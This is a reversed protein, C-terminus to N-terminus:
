SAVEYPKVGLVRCAQLYETRTSDTRLYGLAARLPPIADTPADDAKPKAVLTKKWMVLTAILLDMDEEVLPWSIRLMAVRDSALPFTFDTQYKHLEQNM